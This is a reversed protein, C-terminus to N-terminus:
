VVLRCKVFNDNIIMSIQERTTVCYQQLNREQETITQFESGDILSIYMQGLNQSIIFWEDEVCDCECITLNYSEAAYRLADTHRSNCILIAPIVNNDNAIHVMETVLSQRTLETTMLVTKPTHANLLSLFMISEFYSMQLLNNTQSFHYRNGRNYLERQSIRYNFEVSIIPLSVAITREPEDVSEHLLSYECNMKQNVHDYSLFRQVYLNKGTVFCNPHEHDVSAVQLCSRPLSVIQTQLTFDPLAGQPISEVLENRRFLPKVDGIIGTKGVRYLEGQLQIDNGVIIDFKSM